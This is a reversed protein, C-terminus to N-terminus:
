EKLLTFTKNGGDWSVNLKYIGSPYSSIDLSTESLAKEVLLVKGSLDILQISYTVGNTGSITFQSKSPNPHLKLEREDEISLPKQVTVVTEAKFGGDLTKATISATGEKLGTIQGSLKVEVVSDDSTAWTVSPNTAFSPTVEAIIRSTAGLELDLTEPTAIATVPANLQYTHIWDVKMTNNEDNLVDDLQAIGGSWSEDVTWLDWIINMKRTFKRVTTVKGAPEGDLYFQVNQDDIWYAGLVHYDENWPVGKLPNEASLNRNDFNGKARDDNGNVTLFYQSQMYYPWHSYGGLTPKSNNECIDIEDRNNIDGNNLWFTNYASMHASKMRCETYMPYSIQKYSMVRSTGFWREQGELYSAKIWLNGDSVGSNEDLMEVPVGYNWLPKWWKSEDWTDFEDTLEEVALWEYGEPPAPQAMLSVGVTFFSFSFFWSHKIKEM